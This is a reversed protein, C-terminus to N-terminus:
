PSTRMYDKLAQETSQFAMEEWPLRDKAFSRVELTEDLPALEGGVIEAAYVAIAPVLGDYTYLGVIEKAKVVVGTEELTEREAAAEVREGREVFGGPFTWLGYSPNIGRKVLVIGGKDEFLAGAVLKPGLYFVFGCNTCVLRAPEGDKIVKQELCGGCRPCFEYEQRFPEQM